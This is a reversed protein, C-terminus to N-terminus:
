LIFGKKEHIQWQLIRRPKGETMTHQQLSLKGLRGRQKFLKQSM